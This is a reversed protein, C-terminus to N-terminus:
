RQRLLVFRKGHYSLEAGDPMVDELRVGRPLSQGVRLKHMNILVFRKAPDAAYVHLDLRLRPLNVGPEAAVDQYTPLGSATARVVNPTAASGQAGASPAGGQTSAAVSGPEVAPAYDDPNVDAGGGQATGSPSASSLATPNSPAANPPVANSPAAAYGAPAATGTRAASAYGTGAAAGTPAGTQTAAAPRQAVATTRAAAAAPVQAAHSGHLLVWAAIGLNVVLLAGLLTAWFAFRSAPPAVKVEFLAPGTHRQRESESKKLADLIFSM